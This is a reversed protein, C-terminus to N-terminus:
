KRVSCNEYKFTIQNWDSWPSYIKKGNDIKCVRARSQRQAVCKSGKPVLPKRYRLRSEVEIPCSVVAAPAATAAVAAPAAPAATAAVAAPAATAAVAAVPAPNPSAAAATPIPNDRVFDEIPVVSKDTIRNTSGVYCSWSNNLQKLKSCADIVKHKHVEVAFQDSSLQKKDVSSHLFVWRHDDTRAFTKRSACQLYPNSDIVLQNVGKIKTAIESSDSGGRLEFAERVSLYHRKFPSKPLCENNSDCNLKTKDFTSVDTKIGYEEIENGILVPRKQIVSMVGCSQWTCDLRKEQHIVVFCKDLIHNQLEQTCEVFRKREDCNYGSGSTAVASSSNGVSGGYGEASILLASLCFLQFIGRM